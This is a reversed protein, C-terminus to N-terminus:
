ELLYLLYPHINRYKASEERAVFSFQKQLAKDEDLLDFIADIDDGLLLVDDGADAM